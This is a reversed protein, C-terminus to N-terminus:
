KFKFLNLWFEKRKQRKLEYETRFIEAQEEIGLRDKLCEARFNEKAQSMKIEREFEVEQIKRQIYGEYSKHLRETEKKLDFKIKPKKM